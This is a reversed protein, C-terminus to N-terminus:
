KSYDLIVYIRAIEVTPTNPGSKKKFFLIPPYACIQNIMTM